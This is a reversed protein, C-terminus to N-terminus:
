VDRALELLLAGLERRLIEAIAHEDIIGALQPALRSPFQLVAECWERRATSDDSFKEIYDRAALARPRLARWELLASPIVITPKSGRGQRGKRVIPAGQRVWSLISKPTVRLLRAAEETTAQSDLDSARDDM